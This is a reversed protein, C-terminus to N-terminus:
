LTAIFFLLNFSILVGFVPYRAKFKNVFDNADFFGSILIVGFIFQNRNARLL